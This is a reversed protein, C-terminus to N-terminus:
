YIYCEWYKDFKEKMGKAMAKIVEDDDDIEKSIHLQIRWVNDFYLNSTPYRSGLFLTTIDFFSKFFTAIEEDRDWEEDSPCTRFVTDVIRLHFFARRYRLCTETM